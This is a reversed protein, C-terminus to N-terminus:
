INLVLSTGTTGVTSSFTISTGTNLFPFNKFVERETLSLTVAIQVTNKNWAPQAAIMYQTSSYVTLNYVYKQVHLWLLKKNEFFTYVLSGITSIQL